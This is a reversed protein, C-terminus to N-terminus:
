PTAPCPADGRNMAEVIEELLCVRRSDKKLHRMIQESAIVTRDHIDHFLIVGADNKSAAMQKITRAVIDAPDQAMWDLTDVNWFVHIMGANAIRQRIDTNSVGAGYPLRFFKITRNSLQGLEQSAVRIERDRQETSLKTLQGHTYSHSAIEMGNNMIDKAISPLAKVNRTLQFFTAKLGHVELHTLIKRTTSNGPGDDYTLSWVKRPFETGIINGAKTTSPFFLKSSKEARVQSFTAKVEQAQHEFSRRLEDWQPNNKFKERSKVTLDRWDAVKLTEQASVPGWVGSMDGYLSELGKKVSGEQVRSLELILEKTFDALERHLAHHVMRDLETAAPPLTARLLEVAKLRDELSFEDSLAAKYFGERLEQIEHQQEEIMARAAVIEAYYPNEFLDSPTQDLHRDFDLMSEYGALALLELDQYRKSMEKRIFLPSSKVISEEISAIERSAQNPKQTCSLSSGLLVLAFLIRM